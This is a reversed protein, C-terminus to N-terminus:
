LHYQKDKSKQLQRTLKDAVLDIGAYLNDQREEARIVAGNAYVTVAVLKQSLKRHRHPISLKVDIETMLNEFNRVAKGIKQDVYAQIATTVKVNQGQVLLRM